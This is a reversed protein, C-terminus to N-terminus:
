RLRNSVMVTALGQHRCQIGIGNILDADVLLACLEGTPSDFLFQRYEEIEPWRRNENHFHRGQQDHYFEWYYPGRQELSRQLGRKLVGIWAVDFADRIAVVGTRRFEEIQSPELLPRENQM